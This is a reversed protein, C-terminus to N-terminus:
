NVERRVLGASFLDAWTENGLKKTDITQNLRSVAVGNTSTSDHLIFGDGLYIAVHQLDVPSGPATILLDGRAKDNWAVPSGTESLLNTTAAYQYVLSQGGLRYMQAVFSSCDFQNKAVSADTRGGGYVYPSKGVLKLGQSITSEIIPSNSKVQNAIKKYASLTNDSGDATFDYYYGDIEKFGYEIAGTQPNLYYSKGNITQLGKLNNGTKEDQIYTKFAANKFVYRVGNMDASAVPIKVLGSAYAGFAVLLFAAIFYYKKHASKKLRTKSSNRITRSLVETQIKRYNAM